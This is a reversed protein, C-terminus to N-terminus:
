TLDSPLNDRQTALAVVQARMSECIDVYELAQPISPADISHAALNRLKTLGRISRYLGEDIYGSQRAQAALSGLGIRAPHRLDVGQLPATLDFLARELRVSAELVAARPSAEALDRLEDVSESPRAVPELGVVSSEQAVQELVEGFEAEFAGIRLRRIPATAVRRGFLALPERLRWAAAAVVLPWALARVLGVVFEMWGM